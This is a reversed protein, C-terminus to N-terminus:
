HFYNILTFLFLIVSLIGNMNFFAVNLRSLDTPSVISHEYVLIITSVAIGLWYFIELHLSIGVWVLFVMTLIHLGNSIWLAARIGFRVPISYLNERRDFEVDQCAYIVDFGAIWTAVALGLLIAPFEIRGTIGVWSGVPALGISIGLVIHCLWTFRKTFSYFSLFFVAIPMLKVTLPVTLHLPNLQWASVLLLAFSLIIYLWVEKITILGQPLHRQATRPNKADIHRDILRNLSMAATRAGVMAMTIWFLDSAAPIGKHAFFAGLYAFPLAFVTHEFKIMEGFTRVKKVLM